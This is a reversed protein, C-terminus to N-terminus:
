CKCHCHCGVIGSFLNEGDLCFGLEIGFFRMGGGNGARWELEFEVAVLGCFEEVEQCIAENGNSIFISPEQQLTHLETSQRELRSFQRASSLISSLPRHSMSRCWLSPVGSRTKMPTSGRYQRSQEKGRVDNKEEGKKECFSNM